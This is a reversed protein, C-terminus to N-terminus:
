NSQIIFYNKSISYDLMQIPYREIEEEQIRKFLQVKEEGYFAFIRTKANNLVPITLSIRNSQLESVWVCDVLKNKEQLIKTNPFLSAIHGDKGMGLLVIDFIPIENDAPLIDKLIQEYELASEAPELSGNIPFYNVKPLKNLLIKKANGCNSDESDIPVCREDVWFFYIKSWDIRNKYNKAIIEFIPIPTSGGSLAIFVKGKEGLYKLIKDIFLEVVKQNLDDITNLEFLKSQNIIM